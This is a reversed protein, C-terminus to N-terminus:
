SLFTCLHRFYQVFVSVM